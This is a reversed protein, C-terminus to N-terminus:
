IKGKTSYISLNRESSNTTTLSTPTLPFRGKWEAKAVTTCQVNCLCLQVPLCMFSGVHPIFSLLTWHKDITWFLLGNSLFLNTAKIPHYNKPKHANIFLSTCTPPSQLHHNSQLSFNPRKLCLHESFLVCRRWASSITSVWNTKCYSRCWSSHGSSDTGVPTGQSHLHCGAARWGAESDQVRSTKGVQGPSPSSGHFSDPSWPLWGRDPRSRATATGAQTQLGLTQLRDSKCGASLVSLSALPLSGSTTITVSAFM